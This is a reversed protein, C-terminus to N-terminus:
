DQTAVWKVTAAIGVSKLNFGDVTKNAVGFAAAIGATPEFVVWYDSSPMATGFAIAVTTDTLLLVVNGTRVVKLTSALLADVEAQTYLTLNSYLKYPM